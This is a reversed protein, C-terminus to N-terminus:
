HKGHADAKEAVLMRGVRSESLVDYFGLDAGCRECIFGRHSVPADCVPCNTMRKLRTSSRRDGWVLPQARRRGRGEGSVLRVTLESADEPPEALDDEPGIELGSAIAKMFGPAVWVFPQDAHKRSLRALRHRLRNPPGTRPLGYIGCLIGLDEPDTFQQLDAETVMEVHYRKYVVYLYVAVAAVAFSIVFTPEMGWNIMLASSVAAALVFLLTFVGWVDRANM